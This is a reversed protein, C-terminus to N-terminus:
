ALYWRMFRGNDLDIGEPNLDTSAAAATAEPAAQETETASEAAEAHPVAARAAHTAYAPRLAQQVVLADSAVALLLAILATSRSMM